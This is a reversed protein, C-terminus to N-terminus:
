FDEKLELPSTCMSAEELTLELTPKDPLPARATDKAALLQLLLEEQEVMSLYCVELGLPCHWVFHRPKKCRQCLLSAAHLQQGVDVDMPIGPLLPCAAPAAPTLALVPHTPAPHCLNSVPTPCLISHPCHLEKQIEMLQWQDQAVKYWLAIKENNPCDEALNDIREVLTPHLGNWFTLCLQLGDPYAA